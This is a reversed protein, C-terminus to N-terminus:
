NINLGVGAGSKPANRAIRLGAKGSKKAGGGRREVDSDRSAGVRVGGSQSQPVLSQAPGQIISFRERAQDGVAAASDAKQVQSQVLDEMLERQRDLTGSLQQQMLANSNNMQNELLTKQMEFQRDYESTKPMYITAAPSQQGGGFCM